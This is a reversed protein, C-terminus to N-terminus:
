VVSKRDISDKNQDDERITINGNQCSTCIKNTPLDNKKYIANCSICICRASLRTFLKEVDIKLYIPIVPTINLETLIKDRFFNDQAIDRPYGDLLSVIGSSSAVQIERLMISNIIEQRVLQGASISDRVSRQIETNSIPDLAIKRLIDGPSIHILGFKKVLIQAQTGKGSGAPGFMIIIKM